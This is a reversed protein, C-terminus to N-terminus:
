SPRRTSCPSASATARRSRRRRQAVYTPTCLNGPLVQIGRALTQGAGIAAGIRHGRTVAETEAPALIDVRELAPKKEEPPRKMETFQWAGQALGRRDGPGRRGADGAARRPPLHFAARPVGLARARKAAASAARRIGGRTLEEAKGLGVLM